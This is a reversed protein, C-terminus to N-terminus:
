TSEALWSTLDEITSFDLLAEGLSELQEFSLGAIQASVSEDLNGVKKQLLRLVLLREGEERGEDKAERIARPEETLDLGLMARIEARSLKTFKYVMITTVIDNLNTREAATFDEERTRQLLQKAAAPAEAEPVITLVTAAVAVSLSGVDGLEDLYIRHVQEGNLLSRHPYVKRQEMSRSPYIVVAQWDSFRESNRYFYLLSEGFLREYLKEDKQFQIEAFYVVGPDSEPPLFVGDIEFKPEKVAVSDFRYEAANEPQDGLLAFLLSPSRQFMQYFTPDRRM